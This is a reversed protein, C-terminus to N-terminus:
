PFCGVLGKSGLEVVVARRVHSSVRCDGGSGVSRGHAHVWRRLRRWSGSM